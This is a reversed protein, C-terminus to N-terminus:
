QDVSGVFKLGMKGWMYWSLKWLLTLNAWDNSSLFPHTLPVLLASLPLGRSRSPSPLRKFVHFCANPLIPSTMTCTHFSLVLAFPLFSGYSLLQLCLASLCSFL